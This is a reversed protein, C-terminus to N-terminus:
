TEPRAVGPPLGLNRIPVARGLTLERSRSDARRRQYAKRGAPKPTPAREGRTLEPTNRGVEILGRALVNRAANLDRDLMHGAPCIFLRDRLTLPPYACRGCASCSQTTGKAPVEVYRGSRLAMKYRAMDRIMGWGADSISKALRGRMLNPLAIDEFAVLDNKRAWSSTLRHAFERRQQRVKAHCDAVRLRQKARRRSGRKRRALRRLERGLRAEARVFFKPPDVAEGTSLVVLRTLGLDVGLPHMPPTEPPPPPDPIEYALLAYWETGARTVTATRLVGGPPPNRHRLYELCGLGRFRLTKPGVQVAMPDGFTMSSVERRFRPYGPNEGEAIRRFFARFAHDLRRLADQAVTYPLSGIGSRDFARWRTLERQQELYSISRREARWTRARNELAHNWLYRLESFQRLLEAETKPKPYVRYKYTLHM